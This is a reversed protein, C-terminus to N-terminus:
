SSSIQNEESGVFNESVNNMFGNDIILYVKVLVRLGNFPKM